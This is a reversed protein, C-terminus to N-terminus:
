ASSKVAAIARGLPCSPCAGALMNGHAVDDADVDAAGEGVARDDVAGATEEGGLDGRRGLIERAAHHVREARPRLGEARREVGEGGVM